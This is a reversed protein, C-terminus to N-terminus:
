VTELRKQLADSIAKSIRLTGLSSKKPPKKVVPLGRVDKMVFRGNSEHMVVQAERQSKAISRAARVAESQNPFSSSPLGARKVTWRGDMLRSIRAANQGAHNESELEVGNISPNLFYDRTQHCVSSNSKSM